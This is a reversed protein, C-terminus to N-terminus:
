TKSKVSFYIGWAFFPVVWFVPKTFLILFLSACNISFAYSWDKSYTNKFFNMFSDFTAVVSILIYGVYFILGYNAYASLSNHIYGGLESGNKLHGGFDGLVLNNKIKMMGIEEFESRAMWSSSESYNFIQLQRSNLFFDKFILFSFSTLVTLFIFFLFYKNNDKLKVSLLLFAVLIFAVFESRAGLFFFILLSLVMIILNSFKNDIFCVSLLSIILFNRAIGQYGSISDEDLDSVLSLNLTLSGTTFIYFLMFIALVVISINNIKLLFVKDSRMLYFALAFLASWIILLGLSQNIAPTMGQKYFFYFLLTIVFANLYIGMHIVMLLKLSSRMQKFVYAWGFFYLLYLCFSIVGFYGGLIPAIVNYASLINYLIFGNFLLLFMSPSLLELLERLGNKKLSVM